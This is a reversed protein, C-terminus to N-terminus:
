ATSGSPGSVRTTLTGGTSPGHGGDATSTTMMRMQAPPVGRQVEGQVLQLQMGEWIDVVLMMMASYAGSRGSTSKGDDGDEGDFDPDEAGEDESEGAKKRKGVM